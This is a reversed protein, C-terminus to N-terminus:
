DTPTPQDENPTFNEMEHEDAPDDVSKGQSVSITTKEGEEAMTINIELKDKHGSINVSRPQEDDDDVTYGNSKLATTYWETVKQMSDTSTMSLYKAEEGEKDSASSMGAMKSEPYVFPKLEGPVGNKDESFTTTMGSSDYTVKKDNGCSSLILFSGLVALPVMNLVLSKFFHKQM